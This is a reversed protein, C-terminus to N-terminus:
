DAVVFRLKFKNMLDMIHKKSQFVMFVVLILIRQVACILFNIFFLYNINFEYMLDSAFAYVQELLIKEDELTLDLELLCNLIYNVYMRVLLSTFCVFLEGEKHIEQNYDCRNNKQVSGFLYLLNEVTIDIEICSTTMNCFKEEFDREDIGKDLLYSAKHFDRARIRSCFFCKPSKPLKDCRRYCRLFTSM